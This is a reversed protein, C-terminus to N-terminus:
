KRVWNLMSQKLSNFITSLREQPIEIHILTLGSDVLALLILKKGGFDFEGHGKDFCGGHKAVELSFIMFLNWEFFTPKPGFSIILSVGCQGGERDSDYEQEKRKKEEDIIGCSVGV